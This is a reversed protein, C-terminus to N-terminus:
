ADRPKDVGIYGLPPTVRELATISKQQTNIYILILFLIFIIVMYIITSYLLAKNNKINNIVDKVPNSM